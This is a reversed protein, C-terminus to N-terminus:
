KTFMCMRVGRFARCPVDEKIRKYKGQCPIEFIFNGGLGKSKKNGMPFESATTLAHM